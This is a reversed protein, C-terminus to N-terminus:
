ASLSRGFISELTNQIYEGENHAPVIISVRPLPKTQTASIPKTNGAYLLILGKALTQPADVIIPILLFWLLEYLSFGLINFDPNLTFILFIGFITATLALTLVYKM